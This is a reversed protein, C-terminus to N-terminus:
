ASQVSGSFFIDGIVALHGPSPMEDDGGTLQFSEVNLASLVADVKWAAYITQGPKARDLLMQRCSAEIAARITTTDPFLKQINFDIPYRLPAVVFFDKVAVPRVTDLYAEVQGVDFPAPFGENEARLSDMMFRITVTGMGMELPGCWARTVGPVAMAWLEYDTKDGGMPPQRIRFLVRTRLDADDEEDAGGGFENAIASGDVGPIAILIGISTGDAVNGEAGPDLARVPADTPGEGLVIEQTTEYGVNGMQLQTAAPIITGQLGSFTAFGTAYTAAKRGTSGDSNTLWIDGHRDLWETEATDPLFQLALWDIYRLTLHCLGAMADSMVRLVNNGILVAGSLAAVIDDRVNERVDRLTPTTWPM